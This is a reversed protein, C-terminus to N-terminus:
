DGEEGVGRRLIIEVPKLTGYEDVYLFYRMWIRYQICVGMLNFREQFCSSCGLRIKERSLKCSPLDCLIGKDSQSGGV